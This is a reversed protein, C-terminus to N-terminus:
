IRKKTPAEEYLFHVKNNEIYLLSNNNILEEKESCALLPITKNGTIVYDSYSRLSALGIYEVIHRDLHKNRNEFLYEPNVLFHDGKKYDRLYKYYLIDEDTTIPPKYTLYYIIKLIRRVSGKTDGQIKSWNYIIM